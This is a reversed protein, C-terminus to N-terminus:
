KWIYYLCINKNRVNRIVRKIRPTSVICLQVFIGKIMTMDTDTLIVAHLLEFVISGVKV